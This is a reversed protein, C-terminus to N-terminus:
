RERVVKIEDPVAQGVNFAQRTDSLQSPEYVGGFRLPEYLPGGVASGSSNM